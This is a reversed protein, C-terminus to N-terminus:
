LGKTKYDSSLMKYSEGKLLEGNGEGPEVHEQLAILRQNLSTLMKLTMENTQDLIMQKDQVLSDIIKEQRCNLAKLQEGVYELQLNM